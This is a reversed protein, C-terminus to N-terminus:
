GRAEIPKAETLVSHYRNSNYRRARAAVEGVSSCQPYALCPAAPSRIIDETLQMVMVAPM